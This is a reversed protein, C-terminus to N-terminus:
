DLRTVSSIAKLKLIEKIAMALQDKNSVVLSIKGEFFGENGDIYFSRINLGLNTSVNHSLREIVGPGDDIGTIRLDAVFSANASSVWEARMIRYGYNAMLFTANPCATRHIKMGANVSTYAFIDDGQVPNCCTSLEYSFQTAAEGNILLKPKSADAKRARRPSPKFPEAKKEPEPEIFKHGDIRFKKLEQLNFQDQSIAYYFDVHSNFGFYRVLMEINQDLDVKLHRLKRQLTEKGLEGKKRMEEKMASRIRSRARGTIALKLWDETPKQNKNTIVQIQEGNRLVHGMPVLKNSVKIAQCHYGIDSHISFAFDLATAGKPLIKMDGKPTYVYVEESFLSTKFDSLFEFTNSDKNNLIEKINDLWEDFGTFNDHGKYKWHTAYGKEAVEEMRESRIQVEVYKGYPGMITTHLSEYGNSKPVSIWDRLRETVPKYTDTILSYVRWCTEKEREKPVDVIIRIAFMDYVEEFTVNKTRIKNEISSISKIRGYIRNKIDINDLSVKIPAIFKEIFKEREEKSETIKRTIEDYIEPQSIKLCIDELELKVNYLGLRYALPAYIYSTESSIKLQKQRPLSGITRLNHLRDALKILIVRVDYILTSLIKKFNEAQISLTKYSGDLKTLGDVIRIIEEGFSQGLDELNIETDEVVDHLIACVISTVDLGIEQCCIKAVELPHLIYPEGSKRRQKSHAEVAIDFAKQIQANEEQTITLTSEAIEMLEKYSANIEKLNAESYATMNTSMTELLEFKYGNPLSM